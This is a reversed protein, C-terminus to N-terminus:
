KEPVEFVVDVGRRKFYSQLRKRGERNNQVLREPDLVAEKRGEAELADKLEKIRDDIEHNDNELSDFVSEIANELPNSSM